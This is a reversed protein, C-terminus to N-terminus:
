KKERKGSAVGAAALTVTGFVIVRWMQIDVPGGPAPDGSVVADFAALLDAPTSHAGRAIAGLTAKVRTAAHAAALTEVSVAMRGGYINAAKVFAASDSVRYSFCGQVVVFNGDLTRALIVQTTVFRRGFAVPLQVPAGDIMDVVRRTLFPVSFHIGPEWVAYRKGVLWGLIWERIEHVGDPTHVIYLKHSLLTLALFV